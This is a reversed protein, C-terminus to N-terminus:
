STGFHLPLPFGALLAALPLSPSPSLFFPPLLTPPVRMRCASLSVSVSLLPSLWVSSFIPLPPAFFSRAGLFGFYGLRLSSPLLLLPFAAAAPRAARHSPSQTPVAPCEPGRRPLTPPHPRAPAPARAPRAAAAAASPLRCPCLPSLSPRCVVWVRVVLSWFFVLVWGSLRSLRSLLSFLVVRFAAVVRCGLSGPCGPYCPLWAFGGRFRSVFARWRLGASPLFLAGSRASLSARSPWVLSLFPAPAFIARLFRPLTASCRAAVFWSICLRLLTGRLPLRVGASCAPCALPLPPLLRSRCLSWLSDAPAPLALLCSPPPLFVLPLVSPCAVRCLPRASCAPSPAGALSFWRLPCHCSFLGDSLLAPPLTATPASSPRPPSAFLGCSSRAWAAVSIFFLVVTLRPPLPLTLRASLRGLRRSVPFHPPAGLPPPGTVRSGWPPWPSILTAPSALQSARPRRVLLPRPPRAALRSFRRFSSFSPWSLPSFRLPFAAVASLPRRPLPARRRAAVALCAHPRGAPRRPFRTGGRRRVPLLSLCPPAYRARAAGGPPPSLTLLFVRCPAVGFPV